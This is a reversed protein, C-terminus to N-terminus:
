RGLHLKANEGGIKPLYANAFDYRMILKKNFM